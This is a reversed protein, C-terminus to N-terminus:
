ASRRRTWAAGAFGTLAFLVAGPVPVAAVELDIATLKFSDNWDSAGIGFVRATVDLAVMGHAVDMLSYATLTELSDGSFLVFDDWANVYSFGLGSLTVERGFELVVLDLTGFGDITHSTDGQPDNRLGLGHGAWAQLTATDNAGLLDIRGTGDANREWTAATASVAVDGIMGSLVPAAGINARDLMVTAANAAGFCVAASALGAFASRLASRLPM